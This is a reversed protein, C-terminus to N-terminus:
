HMNALMEETARTPICALPTLHLDLDLRGGWEWITPSGLAPTRSDRDGPGRM